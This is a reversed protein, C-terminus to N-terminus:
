CSRFRLSLSAKNSLCLLEGDKPTNKLKSSLNWLRTGHRDLDVRRSAAAVNRLSVAAEINRSIDGSISKGTNTSTLSEELLKAFAISILRNKALRHAQLDMFLFQGLISNLAKEKEARKIEPAM